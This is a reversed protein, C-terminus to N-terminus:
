EQASCLGSVIGRWRVRNQTMQALTHWSQGGKSMEDEVSRRWTNRPRARRRKGQPNWKLAQRTIRNPDERLTHGIWTWKRKRIQLPPHLYNIPKSGSSRTTSATQGGSGLFDAYANTSSPNCESTQHSMQAGHGQVYFLVAKVNSNFIRMKTSRSLERSNWIKRRLIYATRVKGIRIRIDQDKGGTTDVISGLYTFSTFDEMENNGLRIPEMRGTNIGMMTTKETNIKLGIKSATQKFPLQKQRCRSITTHCYLWIMQLTWITWSMSYLVSFTM